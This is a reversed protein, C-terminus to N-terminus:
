MQLQVQVRAVAGCRQVLTKEGEERERDSPKKAFLHGFSRVFSGLSFEDSAREGILSLRRGATTVHREAPSPRAAQEVHRNARLGIAM